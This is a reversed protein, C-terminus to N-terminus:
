SDVIFDQFYLFRKSHSHTDLSKALVTYAQTNRFVNLSDLHMVIFHIKPSMWDTKDKCNTHMKQTLEKKQITHIGIDTHSLEANQQKILYM